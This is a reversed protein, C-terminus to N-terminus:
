PVVISYLRIVISGILYIEWFKSTRNLNSVIQNREAISNWHTSQTRNAQIWQYSQWNREISILQVYGHKKWNQRKPTKKDHIQLAFSSHKQIRVSLTINKEWVHYGCLCLICYIYFVLWKPQHHLCIIFRKQPKSVRTGLGWATQLDSLKWPWPTFLGCFRFWM